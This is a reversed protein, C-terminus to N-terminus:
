KQDMEAPPLSRGNKLNPFGARMETDTAARQESVPIFGYNRLCVNVSIGCDGDEPLPQAMLNVKNRRWRVYGCQNYNDCQEPKAM